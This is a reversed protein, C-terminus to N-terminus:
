YNISVIYSLKVSFPTISKSEGQHNISKQPIGVGGRLNVEHYRDYESLWRYSFELSPQLWHKTGYFIEDPNPSKEPKFQESSVVPFVNFDAGAGVMWGKWIETEFTSAVGSSYQIMLPVSLSGYAGSGDNAKIYSLGLNIPMALSLSHDNDIRWFVYRIIYTFSLANWSNNDYVSFREPDFKVVNVGTTDYFPVSSMPGSVYETFLSFGCSHFFRSYRIKEEEYEAQSFVEASLMLLLILFGLYKFFKM